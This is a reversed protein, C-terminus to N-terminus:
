SQITATPIRKQLVDICAAIQTTTFDATKEAKAKSLWKEILGDEVKLVAVLADLEAVQEATALVLPADVREIIDRGYRAAIEEFSWPITEGEPFGKLRSKKVVAVRKGGRKQVHLVLHLEYALKEYGDFTKGIETRDGKADVGWEPKEHCIIIANMPLRDLRDVFARALALAPKKSAGFKDLSGLREAEASIAANFSKTHSDIVLTGFAHTETTLAVIQSNILELDNSGDEPGLYMGGSETLKTTYHPLNAGGETDVYYTRPWDLCVWTKGVGPAGYILIKPKAPTAESPAKAKLKSKTTM